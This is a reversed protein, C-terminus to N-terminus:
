REPLTRKRKFEKTRKRAADLRWKSIEKHDGSLLIKPVHMGNYEEPRTYTPYEILQGKTTPDKYSFSEEKSSDSNGLVGP